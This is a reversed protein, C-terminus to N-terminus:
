RYPGVSVSHMHLNYELSLKWAFNYIQQQSANPNKRIFSEWRANWEGGGSGHHLRKHLWTPIRVTTAHVDIGARKFFERFSQQQPYIHHNAYNGQPPRADRGVVWEGRVTVLGQRWTTPGKYVGVRRGRIIRVEWNRPDSRPDRKGPPRGPPRGGRQAVLQDSNALDDMAAEVAEQTPDELTRTISVGGGPPLCEIQVPGRYYGFAPDYGTNIISDHRLLALGIHNQSSLGGDLSGGWFGGGIGSWGMSADAVQGMLGDPDVQNVPDNDVYSYRNLSQPNTISMSGKYPDPATWRASLSDYQRWLTHAMGTAENKEMGAYKQRAAETGGYGQGSTRMGLNNPIDEGFPLYDHRAIVAGGNNTILRPSGQHDDFIFQTGGQVTTSSYEAVLKGMADYVLVNTLSGGVQTAVRQGAADFVSDVAGSNDLNKSQKQRNNADYEFKRNRFKSDVTVNGTNDYTVGSNFRNTALDVHGTEVWVQTFPNGTNQIQKQYRNGFVDYEYKVVYSPQTNNGPIERASSLRGLKDYAFRQTWQKTAQILGEIEAIQGNNKTEDVTNAVPDYVGYKYNYRQLQTGNRTLDLSQVQLRSNYVYSEVAENAFQLSKLLGTPSSYDFQHAYNTTGSSVQSLRAADDFAYEVIRQSPYVQSTLAGGLNYGYSMSYTHSGVIQQNAAIRGMLDFNYVQSTAPISGAAATSAETLQGKNFYGARTQDYKNTITPTGDSYTVQYPRSLLDYRFQTQVNRADHATTLLGSYTVNGIEEDYVLKRSWEDNGTVPDAVEFVAAQEVQREHTLRGLADYKFYRHQVTGSGQAVHVLNGQTDYEYLTPQAPSDVAGLSGSLDPEDVREIRGLADVKQRRLKGAQDTVTTYVGQYSTQLVSNDPLTINSVRGLSDYTTITWHSTHTVDAVGNRTATRYPNSSKWTRGMLDYITDTAIYDNGLESVFTRSSRGLPDFYEYIKTTRTADLKTETLKFLNGVSDGFTYKTWGGDPRTVKRLRNLPDYAQNDDQYSFTTVQGNIDTTTLTLGTTIDFTSSSEFDANSGHTGSPDPALTITNTPYAHKYTSSFETESVIDRENWSKRLNGCQDFQAHTQLPITAAADVYRTVTTINGRATTNPDTYDSGTLDNYTLLPYGVEDYYSETRAVTQLTDNLIGKVTISTPLGLLHQNQYTSNNLYVTEVRSATDGPDIAAIAGSTAISPLITAFHTTTTASRDLGTTFQYGSQNTQAYEYTETAALANGGTDLILNVQKTLRANRYATYTGPNNISPPDPKENTASSQAYEYLSRRLMVDSPSYTRVEKILGHRQDRYGFNESNPGTPFLFLSTETRTQDPGTVVLPTIGPSFTWQAEDDGTGSPSIWRSTMGRNGQFYPFTAASLAIVGSHKYREYGGTPYIVKDIEGHITYFFKYKQGTPLEIEALVTPNFVSDSQGKGIVFAWSSPPESFDTYGSDFLSDGTSPQPSNGGMPGTPAANPDPLYHDAVRKLAPTQGQENLSLVSSLSSFKFKYTKNLENVGPLTYTYEGPGPNAPWPMAIVRGMTDTWQRNAVSYNLTNGNRDIYKVTTSSLEYRSGNPLYLTGSDQGTSDYRMRSGDVSYFTGTMSIVGTDTYVADAKRMEHTSGDPMHMFLQAVRFTHNPITNRPYPKGTYWYIDNQRPWEVKPVDLSTTWGATSHEAYIAENVSNWVSSGMPISRNFGIRWLGGTSYRLTVPMSVGRGPYSTLPVELTMAHSIRRNQTFEVSQAQVQLACVVFNLALVSFALPIRLLKRLKKPLSLERM